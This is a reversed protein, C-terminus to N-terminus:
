HWPPPNPTASQPLPDTRDGQAEPLRIPQNPLGREPENLRMGRYLPLPVDDERVWRRETQDREKGKGHRSPTTTATGRPLRGPRGGALPHHRDLFLRVGLTFAVSSASAGAPAATPSTTSASAPM